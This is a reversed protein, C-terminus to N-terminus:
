KEVEMQAGCATCYRDVLEGDVNWRIDEVTYGCESCHYDKYEIYTIRDALYERAIEKGHVWKAKKREPQPILLRAKNFNRCDECREPQASPLRVLMKVADNKDILKNKPVVENISLLNDIAAQRSVLDTPTDTPTNPQATPANEIAKFVDEAKFWADEVGHAGEVMDKNRNQHYWTTNDIADKMTERSILDSM